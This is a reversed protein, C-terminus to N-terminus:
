KLKKIILLNKDKIVKQEESKWRRIESTNLEVGDNDSRGTYDIIPTPEEGYSNVLLLGADKIAKEIRSRFSEFASFDILFENKIFDRYYTIGDEIIYDIWDEEIEFEGNTKISPLNVIGIITHNKKGLKLAHFNDIKEAPYQLIYIDLDFDLYIDCDDIIANKPVLVGFLDDSIKLKNEM